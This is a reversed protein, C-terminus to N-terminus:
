IIWFFYIIIIIVSVHVYNIQIAMMIISINNLDIIPEHM